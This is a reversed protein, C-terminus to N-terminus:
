IFVIFAKEADRKEIGEGSLDFQQRVVHCFDVRISRTKLPFLALRLNTM